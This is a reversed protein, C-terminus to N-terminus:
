DDSSESKFSLACIYCRAESGYHSHFKIDIEMVLVVITVSMDAMLGISRFLSAKAIAEPWDFRHVNM